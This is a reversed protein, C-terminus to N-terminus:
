GSQCMPCYYASRGTVKIWRIGAGCRPCATGQRRLPLLWSGPMRGPEAGCEVAVQLVERTAEFVARLSGNDLEDARASPRLGAQFLIEDAYVNGLGAILRQDMLASKLGGRRGTLLQRFTRFDRAADWADPGLGNRRVYDEPSDVLGVHGLARQAAYSLRYGNVFFVSLRTYPAAQEERSGYALFGTMGFHFRVWCSPGPDSLEVFLHKGHRATRAFARGHLRHAVEDPSLSALIGPRPVWVDAIEQRLAHCALYQRYVEVDPM